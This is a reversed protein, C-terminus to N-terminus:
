EIETRPSLERLQQVGTSASAQVAAQLLLVARQQSTQDFGLLVSFFQLLWSADLSMQTVHDDQRFHNAADDSNVITTGVILNLDASLHDSVVQTLTQPTM